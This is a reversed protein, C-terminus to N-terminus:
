LNLLNNNECVNSVAKRKLENERLANGLEIEELIREINASQTKRTLTLTREDLESFPLTLCYSNDLQSESHVEFNNSSTNFVIYYSRDIEKIRKSINFVDSKVKFKM